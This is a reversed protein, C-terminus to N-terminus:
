YDFHVTLKSKEEKAAAFALDLRQQLSPRRRVKPDAPPQVMDDHNRIVWIYEEDAGTGRKKGHASGIKEKYDDVVDQLSSFSWNDIDEGWQFSAVGM